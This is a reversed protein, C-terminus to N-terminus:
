SGKPYDNVHFGSGRFQANAAAPIRDALARCEPCEQVPESYMSQLKEFEHECESCQYVYIPM